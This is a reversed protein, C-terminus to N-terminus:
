PDRGPMTTPPVHRDFIHSEPPCYGHVLQALWPNLASEPPSLSTKAEAVDHTEPVDDEAGLVDEVSEIVDDGVEEFEDHSPHLPRPGPPTAWPLGPATTTTGPREPARPLPPLAAELTTTRPLPPPLAATALAAPPLPGDLSSTRGPLPPPSGPQPAPAQPVDIVTPVSPGPLPAVPSPVAAAGLSTPRAPTFARAETLSVPTFTRPAGVSSPAALGQMPASTRPVEYVLPAAPLPATARPADIVTPLSPAPAPTFTPSLRFPLPEDGAPLDAIPPLPTPATPWPFSAAGAPPATVAEPATPGPAPAVTSLDSKAEAVREPRPAVLVVPPPPPAAAPEHGSTAEAVGEPLPAGLVVPPAPPAAAPDTGLKAEAVREPLPAGLVVPPAPPAAAPDTGIKAEAVREPLPAGLVVPPAPSAAAPDTGRRHARADDRVPTGLIAPADPDVRADTASDPRRIAPDTTIKQAAGRSVDSDELGPPRAGMQTVDGDSVAPQGLQTAEAPDAPADTEATVVAPKGILQEYLRWLEARVGDADFLTAGRRAAEGLTVRRAPDSALAGLADALSGVDGPRFWAAADDPVHEHVLPLDAALVPRGAALYEGARALSGGPRHNRASDDLTLVGVDAAALIKFIDDHAVPPQLEVREKLGLAAVQDELRAQWEPHQPGVVTLRADVTARVQAMAEVLTSLGQYPLQSGLHVLRVPLGDPRGLAEPQYLSLDVPARLCHVQGPPVGLATVSQRTVESGVLVADANMLCYLEQRRARAIFKRNDAIGPTSFPLEASPFTVADYVLRYGYTSRLECLPYGGFPDFFHVLVYEESELQRRVARDFAQVRSPLDGSGVPVRLLRAGQYREIHTHDPTKVTLAVVQYRESLGKLYETFRRSVACPAPVVDFACFL